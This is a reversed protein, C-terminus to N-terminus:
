EIQAGGLAAIGSDLLHKAIGQRRQSACVALHHILGRRGDHGVLITGVINREDEAVFSPGPNRALGALIAHKEDASSLGVVETTEWLSRAGAYDAPM